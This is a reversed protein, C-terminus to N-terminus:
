NGSKIALNERMKEYHAKQHPTVSPRVKYLAESFHNHTIIYPPNEQRLALCAAERVLSSLDAGSFGVTKEALLDLNIDSDLPSSRTLAQLISKREGEEPLPVFLIKDLRGPRLMAPDIIDPRNTAAIVFVQRRDQLGNLETLLQNVVRETAQNDGGRAACLSDIEDFFIVCPASDRARQFLQRVAKESEGVYKNLLEPGNVAIFNAKSENAVAKALLTKGCGPPGCLLVGAAATIGVAQYKEPCQIAHVISFYLETRLNEMGGIDQWTTDPITSFGERKSSPQVKSVAHLFDGMEIYLNELDLMEEQMVRSIARNGAEKVLSQLDAGVYGPTLKAIAHIDIDGRIKLDKMLLSLIQFRQPESPIGFHIERDFRGAQRLATDISEIRNTAALVIVVKGHSLFGRLDDMCTLLQSVIRKEMERHTNSRNPAIADIEDIFIISPASESAKKFLERLKQESEGSMGSVIEPAALKYFPVGLEGCIAHALYTKGTGPPGCLLVGTAPEIHLERYVEPHVMPYVVLEQIDKMIQDIGGIDKFKLETTFVQENKAPKQAPPSPATKLPLTKIQQPEEENPLNENLIKEIERKLPAFKIRSAKHDNAKIFKTIEDADPDFGKRLYDYICGM